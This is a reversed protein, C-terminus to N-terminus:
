CGDQKARHRHETERRVDIQHTETIQQEDPQNTDDDGRNQVDEDAATWELEEQADDPHDHEHPQRSIVHLVHFAHCRDDFHLTTASFEDGFIGDITRKGQIEVEDVNEEEQQADHAAPSVLGGNLCVSTSLNGVET